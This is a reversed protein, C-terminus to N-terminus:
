FFLEGSGLNGTSDALVRNMGSGSAAILPLTDLDLESGMRLTWNAALAADPIQIIIIIFHVSTSTRLSTDLYRHRRVQSTFVGEASMGYSCPAVGTVNPRHAVLDAYWSAWTANTATPAYLWIVLERENGRSAARVSTRSHTTQLLFSDRDSMLAPLAEAPRAAKREVAASYNGAPATASPCPLGAAAYDPPAWGIVAGGPGLVRTRPLIAPSTYLLTAGDSAYYQFRLAAGVSGPSELPDVVLAAFGSSANTSNYSASLMFKLSDPPLADVNTSDYCCGDGTGSVVFVTDRGGVAASAPAIFEGCHDHGSLYATVNAAVLLPLLADICWETNGHSCGSWVPYHGGVLLFDATSAALEEALWALQAACMADHVPDSWIGYCLTTDVLLVASLPHQWTSPIQSRLHASASM